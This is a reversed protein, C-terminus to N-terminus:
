IITVNGAKRKQESGQTVNETTNFFNDPFYTTVVLSFNPKAEKKLKQKAPNEYGSPLFLSIVV